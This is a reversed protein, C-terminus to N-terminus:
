SRTKWWVRATALVLLAPLIYLYQAPFALIM